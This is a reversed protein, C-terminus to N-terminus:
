QENKDGIKVIKLGRKLRKLKRMNEETVINNDKSDLESELKETRERYEKEFKELWSILDQSLEYHAEAINLYRFGVRFVCQRGSKQHLVIVNKALWDSDYEPLYCINEPFIINWKLNEEDFESKTEKKLLDIANKFSIIKYKPDFIPEPVIARTDLYEEVSIKNYEKANQILKYNQCKVTKEGIDFPASYMEIYGEAISPRNIFLFGEEYLYEEKTKPHIKFEYQKM